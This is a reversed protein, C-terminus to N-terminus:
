SVSIFPIITLNLGRLKDAKLEIENLAEELSTHDTKVGEIYLDQFVHRDSRMLYYDPHQSLETPEVIEYIRYIM